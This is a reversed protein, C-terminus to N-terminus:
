IIISGALSRKELAANVWGQIWHWHLADMEHYPNNGIVVCDKFDQRGRLGAEQFKLPMNNTQSSDYNM